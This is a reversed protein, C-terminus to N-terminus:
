VGKRNLQYEASVKRNHVRRAEIKALKEKRKKEHEMKELIFWYGKGETAAVKELHAKKWEELSIVRGM